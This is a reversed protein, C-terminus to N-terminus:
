STDPKSSSPESHSYRHAVPGLTRPRGVVPGTEELRSLRARFEDRLPPSASDSAFAFSRASLERRRM